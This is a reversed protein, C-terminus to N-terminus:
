GDVRAVGVAIVVHIVGVVVFWRALPQEHIAMFKAVTQTV